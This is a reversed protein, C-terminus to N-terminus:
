SSRRRWGKKAWSMGHYWGGVDAAMGHSFVPHVSWPFLYALHLGEGSGGRWIGGWLRMGLGAVSWRPCGEKGM